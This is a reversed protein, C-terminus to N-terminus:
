IDPLQHLNPIFALKLINEIKCFVGLTEQLADEERGKM